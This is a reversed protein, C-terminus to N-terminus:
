PGSMEGLVSSPSASPVQELLPQQTFALGVTGSQRPKNFNRGHRLDLDPAQATCETGTDGCIHGRGSLRQTASWPPLVRETRLFSLIGCEQSCLCGLCRAPALVPLASLSPRPYYPPLPCELTKSTSLGERHRLVFDSCFEFTSTSCPSCRDYKSVKRKFHNSKTM